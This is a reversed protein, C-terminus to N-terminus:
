YTPENWVSTSRSVSVGASSDKENSPFRVSSGSSGSGDVSGTFDNGGGGKWRRRHEIDPKSLPKKRPNPQISEFEHFVSVRSSRPWRGAPGVISSASRALKFILPARMWYRETVSQPVSTGEIMLHQGFIRANRISPVCDMMGGRVCVLAGLLPFVGGMEGTAGGKLRWWHRAAIVDGSTESLRTKM